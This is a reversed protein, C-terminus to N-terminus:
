DAPPTIRYGAPPEAGRLNRVFYDWRKRTFYSHGRAWSSEYAKLGRRLDFIGHNTHPVILMEFDKEAAILADVLRLTESPHVNDDMEGHVLYLKGKLNGALRV